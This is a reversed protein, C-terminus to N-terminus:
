NPTGHRVKLWLSGLTFGAIWPLAIFPSIYGLWSLNFWLLTSDFFGLWSSGSICNIVLFAIVEAALLGLIFDFASWRFRRSLVIALVLILLAMKTAQPVIGRGGDHWLPPTFAAVAACLFIGGAALGAHILRLKMRDRPSFDVLIGEAGPRKPAVCMERLAIQQSCGRCEFERPHPLGRADTGYYERDCHPCKFSVAGPEFQYVAVDFSRGCEPCVPRPLNFLLYGCNQCKM